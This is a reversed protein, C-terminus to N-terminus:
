LKSSKKNRRVRFFTYISPGWMAKSFIGYELDPHLNVLFNNAINESSGEDNTHCDKSAKLSFPVMRFPEETPLDSVVFFADKKEDVFMPPLDEGNAPKFLGLYSPKESLGFLTSMKEGLQKKLKYVYKVNYNVPRNAQMVPLLKSLLNEPLMKDVKIQLRRAPTIICNVQCHHLDIHREELNHQRFINFKLRCQSQKKISPKSGSRRKRSATM